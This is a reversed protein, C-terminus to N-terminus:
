GVLDGLVSGQKRGQQTADAATPNKPAWQATKDGVGASRVEQFSVDLALLNGGSQASRTSSYGVVAMRSIVRAPTVISFLATSQRYSEIQALARQQKAYDGRFLLTATLESPQPVKDYAYLRGNEQPETPISANASDSLNDIGDYELFANGADDVVAWSNEETM